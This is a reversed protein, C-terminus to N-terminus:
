KSNGTTGHLPQHRLLYLWGLVRLGTKFNSLNCRIVKGPTGASGSDTIDQLLVAREKASLKPRLKKLASDAKHYLDVLKAGENIQEEPPIIYLKQGREKAM